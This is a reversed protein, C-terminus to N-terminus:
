KAFLFVIETQLFFCKKFNIYLKEQRLTEFAKQLHQLRENESPSFILIDDFYM